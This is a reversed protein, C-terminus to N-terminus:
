GAMALWKLVQAMAPANHVRLVKVGAQVGLGLSAATLPDRDAPAITNDGLTLFSKRSTGMLVPYPSTACLMPLARFLALNHALTKGFGFGPDILIKDASVGAALAVQAQQQLFAHVEQVVDGYHPQDQMTAPTGQSHMIVLGANHRAVTAAMAADFQLGSIDNIIDAGAQCALDAVQAKRTDVSLVAQPLASRLAVLAPLLRECEEAPDVAVAGPRTSEAGLDFCTVGQSWCHQAYALLGSLDEAGGSWQGGDSFSDPTLNIIAM